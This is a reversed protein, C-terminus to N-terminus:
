TRDISVLALFADNRGIFLENINGLEQGDDSLVVQRIVDSVRIQDPAESLEPVRPPINSYGTMMGTEPDRPEAAQAAGLAALAILLISARMIMTAEV